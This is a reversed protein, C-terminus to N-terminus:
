HGQKAKAQRIEKAEKKSPIHERTSLIAKVKDYLPETLDHRGGYYIFLSNKISLLQRTHMKELHGAAIWENSLMFEEIISRRQKTM